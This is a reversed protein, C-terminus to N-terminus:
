PVFIAQLHEPNPDQHLTKPGLGVLILSTSYVVYPPAEIDECSVITLDVIILHAPFTHCTGAPNQHPSRLSLSWKSTRPTSQFIINFHIKM